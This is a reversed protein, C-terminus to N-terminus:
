SARELAQRIEQHEGRPQDDGGAKVPQSNAAYSKSDVGPGQARRHFSRGAMDSGGLGAVRVVPCKLQVDATARAQRERVIILILV